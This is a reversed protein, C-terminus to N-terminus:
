RRRPGSPPSRSTACRGSATTPSTPRCGNCTPSCSPRRAAGGRSEGAFEDPGAWEPGPRLRRERIEGTDPDIRRKDTVTVPEHPDNQSVQEGGEPTM